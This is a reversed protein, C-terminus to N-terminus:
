TQTFGIIEADFLRRSGNFMTFIRSTHIDSIKLRKELALIRKLYSKEPCSAYTKFEVKEIITNLRQIYQNKINDFEAQSDIYEPRSQKMTQGILERCSNKDLEDSYVFFTDKPNEGITHAIDSLFSSLSHGYYPYLEKEIVSSENYYLIRYLIYHDPLEKHEQNAPTLKKCLYTHNM